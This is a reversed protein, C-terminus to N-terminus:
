EPGPETDEAEEDNDDLNFSESIDTLESLVDMAQEIFDNPTPPQASPEEAPEPEDEWVRKVVPWYGNAPFGHEDRIIDAERGTSRRLKPILTGQPLLWAELAYGSSLDYRRNNIVYEKGTILVTKGINDMEDDFPQAALLPFFKIRNHEAGHTIVLPIPVGRGPDIRWGKPTIIGIDM